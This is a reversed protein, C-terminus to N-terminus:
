LVDDAYKRTHEGGLTLDGEMGMYKVGKIKKQRGEGRKGRTVAMSNDTDTLKKDTQRTQKDSEM